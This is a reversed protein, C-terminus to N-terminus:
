SLNFIKRDCITVAFLLRSMGFYFILNFLHFSKRDCIAVVFLAM